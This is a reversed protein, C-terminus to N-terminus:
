KLTDGVHWKDCPADIFLTKNKGQIRYECYSVNQKAIVVFPRHSCGIFLVFILLYKM